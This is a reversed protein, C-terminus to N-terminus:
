DIGSIFGGRRTYTKGPKGPDPDYFARVHWRDEPVDSIADVGDTLLRWFQTPDNAGGPFRCGIGIIAIPETQHDPGVDFTPRAATADQQEKM